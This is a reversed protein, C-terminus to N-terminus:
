GLGDEALVEHIPRGYWRSHDKLLQEAREPDVGHKRLIKEMNFAAERAEALTLREERHDRYNYLRREVIAVTAQHELMTWILDYDDIGPFNGITEDLGGARLLAERQFLFFHQLYSARQQLTPLAQYEAMSLTQSGGQNVTVGDALYMTLGTCVIDATRPMCLEVTEPELWDDSLLLGIRSATACRIGLNIAAPFSGPTEEVFVRLDKAVAQHQRLIQLNSAPTAAAHVVIVECPVSQRIASAVCQSLWADNQGKLPIIITALPTM